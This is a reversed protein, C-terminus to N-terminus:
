RARLDNPPLPKQLNRRHAVIAGLPGAVAGVLSFFVAFEFREFGFRNIYFSNLVVAAVLAVAFGAVFAFLLKWAPSEENILLHTVAGSAFVAILFDGM